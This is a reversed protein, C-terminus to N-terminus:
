GELDPHSTLLLLSPDQAWHKHPSLSIGCAQFMLKHQGLIKPYLHCSESLPVQIPPKLFKAQNLPPNM